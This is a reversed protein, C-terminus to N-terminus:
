ALLCASIHPKMFSHHLTPQRGSSLSSEASRFATACCVPMLRWINRAVGDM